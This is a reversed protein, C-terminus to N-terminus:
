LLDSFFLSIMLPIYILALLASILIATAAKEVSFKTLSSMVLINGALPSLSIMQLAHHVEKNYLHLIFKDVLVLIYVLLPFIIYKIFVAIVSFKIDIKFTKLSSLGLGITMMGLISYVSRMSDIFDDLFDPLTLGSISM